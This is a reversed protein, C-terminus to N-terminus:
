PPGVIATILAEYGFILLVKYLFQGYPYYRFRMGIGLPLWIELYADGKTLPIAMHSSLTVIAGFMGVLVITRIRNAAISRPRFYSLLGIGLTMWVLIFLVGLDPIYIM